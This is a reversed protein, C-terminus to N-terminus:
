LISLSPCFGGLRCANFFYPTVSSISARKPQARPFAPRRIWGSLGPGGIPAALTEPLRALLNGLTAQLTLRRAGGLFNTWYWRMNASSLLYTGSGFAAHSATTFDPAYCGYFLAGAALAPKGADRRHVLAALALNAGASDGAVAIRSAPM